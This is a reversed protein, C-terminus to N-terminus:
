RMIRADLCTQIAEARMFVGQLNSGSTFIYGAHMGWAENNRFVPAGSDGIKNFYDAVIFGYSFRVWNPAFNTSTIPGREVDYIGTERGSMGVLTGVPYNHYGNVYDIDRRNPTEAGMHIWSSFAWPNTQHPIREADCNGRVVDRDAKGIHGNPGNRRWQGVVEDGFCHGATTAARQSGTGVLVPFGSTCPDDTGHDLRLGGMMEWQCNSRSCYAQTPGSDGVVVGVEFGYHELLSRELQAEDINSPLPDSVIVEVLNAFVNENVAYAGGTFSLPTALGETEIRERERVLSTFQEELESKSQKAHRVEIREPYAYGRRLLKAMADATQNEDTSLVVVKAPDDLTLWLGAFSEGLVKPLVEPLIKSADELRLRDLAQERGLGLTEQASGIWAEDYSRSEVESRTAPTPALPAPTPEGAEPGPAVPDAATDGAPQADAEPFSLALVSALILLGIARTPRSSM